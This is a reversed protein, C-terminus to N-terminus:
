PNAPLTRRMIEAVRNFRERYAQQRAASLRRWEPSRQFATWHSQAEAWVDRLPVPQQSLGTRAANEIEWFFAEVERGHSGLARAAAPRRWQRAHQLEHMVSSYARVVREERSSGGFATPGIYVCPLSGTCEPIQGAPVTIGNARSHDGPISAPYTEVYRPTGNAMVTFDDGKRTRDALILDIMGQRINRSQGYQIRDLLEQVTVQDLHPILPSAPRPRAPIQSPDVMGRVRHRREGEEPERALAVESATLPKPAGAPREASDFAAAAASAEQERVDNEPVLELRQGPGATRGQQQAVHALEHALLCRGKSTRPRYESGFVVHQGVTYASAQVAKASKAANTDAHVRVQSFDRGFRPEMFARTAADLPQGPSALAEHVVPPAETSGLAPDASRSRTQVPGAVANARTVKPSPQLRNTM